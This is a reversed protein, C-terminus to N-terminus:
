LTMVIDNIQSASETFGLKFLNVLSVFDDAPDASCVLPLPTASDHMLKTGMLRPSDGDWGCLALVWLRYNWTESALRV